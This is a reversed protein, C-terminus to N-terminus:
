LYRRPDVPKGQIRVEFHVHPGTSLGTSGSAAVTQGRQVVQGAQVLLRSNHAYLTTVGGGHNIIVTNGYGGYWGVYIVTGRDAARVPTGTSARFDIGAHFRRSRYIPHIRYGFGSTMSGGVPRLFRGTGQVPDGQSQEAIIKQILSSLKNSDAALREQAAEYASRQKSLRQVLTKQAVVQDEMQDKQQALQQLLLSIENKQAEYASREQRVEEGTKRLEAILNRDANILIQLQHRRDFFENLDKSNLLLAWWHSTGQRQLYRLRAATGEQQQRLKAEMQELKAQIQVLKKQAEELLFEKDRIRKSTLDINSNLNGIKEQASKEQKILTNIQNQNSKIQQQIQNQQQKLKNISQAHLPDSWWLLGLGIALFLAIWGKFFKM